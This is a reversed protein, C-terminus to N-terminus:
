NKDFNNIFDRFSSVLSHSVIDRYLEHSPYFHSELLSALIGEELLTPFLKRCLHMMEEGYKKKIRLLDHEM